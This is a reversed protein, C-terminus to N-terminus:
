EENDFVGKEIEEKVKSRVYNSFDHTKTLKDIYAIVEKDTRPIVVSYKKFLEKLRCNREEKNM